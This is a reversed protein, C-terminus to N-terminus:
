LSKYPHGSFTRFVTADPIMRLDNAAGTIFKGAYEEKLAKPTNDQGYASAVIAVILFFNTILEKNIM